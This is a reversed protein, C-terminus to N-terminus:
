LKITNTEIHVLTKNKNSSYLRVDAFITKRKQKVLRDDGLILRKRKIQPDTKHLKGFIANNINGKFGNYM